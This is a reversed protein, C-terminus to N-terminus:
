LSEMRYKKWAARRKRKIEAPVYNFFFKYSMSNIGSVITILCQECRKTKAEENLLHSNIYGASHGCISFLKKEETKYFAHSCNRGPIVKWQFDDINM